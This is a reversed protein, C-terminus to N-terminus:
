YGLVCKADHLRYYMLFIARRLPIQLYVILMEKETAQVAVKQTLRMWAVWGLDARWKELDDVGIAVNGRGVCM